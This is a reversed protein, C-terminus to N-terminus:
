HNFIFTKSNFISWMLDEFAQRRAGDGGQRLSALVQTQESETPPRVLTAMFLRQTIEENTLSPDALWRDLTGDKGTIQKQITEGSILHMAQAVDPSNDRECIVERAKLRGFTQLFYTPAGQPITMSRTGLMYGPIKEPVGTVETMSDILEEALLRRMFYHSYNLTDDRNTENPESSLQYARSNLIVRITHKLHYGNSIFDKALADLLAENTPPNTVRFDDLPEVIGRGMYYKFVRNVIARAFWPNEPATIWKALKERVDEDLRETESPGDLYKPAVRKKTKPSIVEGAPKLTVESEDNEYTDKIGMRGFFAAFGWFDEQTWKEWPHNHCRACEIRVGLFVQSVNTAINEPESFETIYYFNSAPNFYLNGSATILETAFQDFPMDELMAKRLWSYMIRGGKSRQDLLGVRFLDSFRTAWVEAFEPREILEDILRARKQPDKSELFRGSEDLTPLLGVIDLYVRRVFERDSSLPSPVINVRKLKSLILEDVFNNCPVEPYDKMPTTGIVAVRAAVAKGLTRVMIATEGARKARIEGNPSVELVSEDNATYQVKHTLDETSEDTYTGSVSLQQKSGLGVLTVEEPVVRITRLRPSGASDYTAGDRIWNLIAEYELSGVTFREGGGHPVGFTPKLLILSRAPDNRDIRRGDQAKVIADYDLDPEYGFLSLKFGAQGRISGHCNSNACGSKTFIPVIDKVFSLRPKENPAASLPVTATALVLVVVSVTIMAGRLRPVGRDDGRVGPGEGRQPSPSTFM